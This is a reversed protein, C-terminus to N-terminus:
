PLPVCTTTSVPPDDKSPPQGKKKRPASAAPSRETAPLPKIDAAGQTKAVAERQHQEAQRQPTLRRQEDAVRQAERQQSKSGPDAADVARGQVPRALM